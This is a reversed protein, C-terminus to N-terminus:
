DATSTYLSFTYSLLQNMVDKPFLNSLIESWVIKAAM